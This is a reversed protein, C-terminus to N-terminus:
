GICFVIPSANGQIQSVRLEQSDGSQNEQYRGETYGNYVKFNYDTSGWHYEGTSCGIWVNGNELNYNSSLNSTLWQYNRNARNVM